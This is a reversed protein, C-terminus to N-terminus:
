KNTILSVDVNKLMINVLSKTDFEEKWGWDSRAASDDISSPWSDAIKQRYDPSYAIKFNPLSVQIEKALEKPTFSCGSLNYSSRIKVSEKDAEMLEITARIADKMYMMPLATNESLFCTFSM